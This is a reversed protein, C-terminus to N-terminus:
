GHIGGSEKAKLKRLLYFKQEDSLKKIKDLTHEDPISITNEISSSSEFDSQRIIYDPCNVMEEISKIWDHNNQESKLKQSYLEVNKYSKQQLMEQLTVAIDKANWRLIPFLKAIGLKQLRFANDPGDTLHPLIIQPIGALVAESLTGIGGHHIIADVKTMLCSLNVKKVRTIGKQLTEPVLGDHNVVLIGNYGAQSCAATAVKFFDPNIMKSTGATILIVKENSRLLSNIEEGFENSYVNKKSMFGIPVVSSPWDNEPQAFWEPWVGFIKKPSYLWSKWDSIPQLQLSVRAKNIEEIMQAGFVQNHLEMHDLYNPALVVSAFPLELKEAALMASISSRHRGIIVTDKTKCCSKIKKYECILRSIGHHKKNFEITAQTDKIPDALMHLDNNMEDFEAPSDIAIFDLGHQQAVEKYYCHTLITVHHNHKTLISGLVIFPFVDGGTWHTVLIINAM